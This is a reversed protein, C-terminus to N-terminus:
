LEDVHAAPQNLLSCLEIYARRFDNFLPYLLGQIVPGTKTTADIPFAIDWSGTSNDTLPLWPLYHKAFNRLTNATIGGKIIYGETRGQIARLRAFRPDVFTRADKWYIIGGTPPTALKKEVYVALGDFLSMLLSTGVQFNYCVAEHSGGSQAERCLAVIHQRVRLLGNHYSQAVGANNLGALPEFLDHASQTFYDLSIM